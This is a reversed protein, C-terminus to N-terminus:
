EERLAQVPDIRTARRAPLWAAAVSLAALLAAAGAFTAPDGTHVGYLLTSLVQTLALAGAVGLVIGVASVAVAQGLV